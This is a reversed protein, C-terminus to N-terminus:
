NMEERPRYVWFGDGCVGTVIYRWEVARLWEAPFQRRGGTEGAPQTLVIQRFEGANIRRLLEGDDFRGWRRLSVFQAGHLLYPTRDGRIAVYLDEVLVPEEDVLVCLARDPTGRAIAWAGIRAEAWQTASVLALGLWAVRLWKMRGREWWVATLVCSVALPKLYYNLWAGLKVSGAVALVLAVGLWALLPWEDRERRAGVAGLWLPAGRLLVATALLAAQSWKGPQVVSGWVNLGFAGGTMWELGVLVSVVIGLWGALVRAGGRWGVRRWEAVAVVVVASVASQKQLFAAVLLGVVWWGARGRHRYFWWAALSFFIAGADPRYSAAWESAVPGALWFVAGLGASGRGCGAQRALLWVMGAVGIWFAYTLARGIVFTGLVDAGVARALWGPGYYFLPTYQAVVHPPQRYDYYVPRETAVHRLALLSESEAPTVEGDRRIQRWTWAQQAVVAVLLVEVVVGVAIREWPGSM